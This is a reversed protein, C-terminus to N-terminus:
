MEHYSDMRVVTPRPQWITTLAPSAPRYMIDPTGRFSVTSKTTISGTLVPNGRSFSLEGATFIQAEINMNGTINLTGAGYLGISSENAGEYGSDGVLLDGRFEINGGVIFMTYGNIVANDVNLDGQIYWIFPEDRSGGEYTGSLNVSGMTSMTADVKTLWASVDVNPIEVAASHYADPGSGPNYNPNFTNDLQGSGTGAFTGFGAVRAANGDVSLNGNTHMNANLESAADGEVEIAAEVNGRLYLDGDALIAFEMFPPPDLPLPGNIRQFQSRVTYDIEKGAGQVLGASTVVVRNGMVDAVVNYPAGEYVGSFSHDSWSEALLQKARNFGAVAANRTVVEYQTNAIRTNSELMSQQQNMSYFAGAVMFGAIVLAAFKGM